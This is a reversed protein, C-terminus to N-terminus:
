FVCVGSVPRVQPLLSFYDRFEDFSVGRSGDADIRAVLDAVVEQRCRMVCRTNPCCISVHQLSLDLDEPSIEGDRDSPQHHHRTTTTAHPKTICLTCLKHTLPPATM